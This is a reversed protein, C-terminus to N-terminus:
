RVGASFFFDAYKMDVRLIHHRVWQGLFNLVQASLAAKGAHFDRQFQQVKKVFARHERVHEAADPYGHEAFLREETAFHEAAYAVLEDLIKGLQHHAKGALATDHLRNLLDVLHRHQADIEAVYVSFRPSWRVLPM